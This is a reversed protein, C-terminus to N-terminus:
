SGGQYVAARVQSARVQSGAHGISYRVGRRWWAYIAGELTDSM